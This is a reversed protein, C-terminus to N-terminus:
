IVRFLCEAWGIEYVAHIVALMVSLIHKIILIYECM